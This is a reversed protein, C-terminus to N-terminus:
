GSEGIDVQDEMGTIDPFSPDETLECKYYSSWSVLAACRSSGSHCTRLM